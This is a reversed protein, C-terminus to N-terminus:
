APLHHGLAKEQLVCETSDFLLVLLTFSLFVIPVETVAPMLFERITLNQKKMKNMLMQAPGPSTERQIRRNPLVAPPPLSAMDSCQRSRWDAHPDWDHPHAPTLVPGAM